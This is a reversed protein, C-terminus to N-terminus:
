KNNECQNLYNRHMISKCHTKENFSLYHGGCGCFITTQDRKPNNIPNRRTNNNKVREKLEDETEYAKKTNMNANYFRRWYEERIRAEDQTDCTFEEIVETEINFWGGNLYIMEYLKRKCKGNCYDAYKTKHTYFRKKINKTSGIYNNDNIKIRYIIFNM